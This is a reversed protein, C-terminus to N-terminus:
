SDGHGTWNRLGDYINLCIKVHGSHHWIDNGQNEAVENKVDVLDHMRKRTRARIEKKDEMRVSRPLRSSSPPPYTLKLTQKWLKATIMM